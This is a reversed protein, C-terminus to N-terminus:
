GKETWYGMCFQNQRILRFNSEGVEGLAMVLDMQGLVWTGVRSDEM